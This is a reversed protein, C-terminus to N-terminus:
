ASAPKDPYRSHFQRLLVPSNAVNSAPEWSNHSTDYGKWKVLYFLRRRSIKSDLIEEVEYEVDPSNNVSVPPPPPQNRGPISNPKYPELLSVHFVPHIKMSAPLQLRYAQTGIRDRISFPGLRKWDLKKSPRETHIHPSLLWVQDGVSFEIRKHKADYYKAQQNQAAKVYEILDDHLNRLKQAFTKAAPVPLNYRRLDVAFTPHYGYNAYFPSCDISTQHANNYAFEAISLFDFWNDQQYNCYIRLYQEVIQNMRETQGDTQPHFSTSLRQRTGMMRSLSKWFKSTFISGRDSVLSEPIGHLRVVHDLFMKAFDHATATKLCPVLHSMKTFRDVFVLLSDFGNSMPLDVIFDCTIGKWPGSPVPLPALEGHRRHRPPKARACTDCTTVYSNVYASMGPFYYNRSLLECTKKAGFHGALPDDHYQKLLMVRLSDVPPIYVLGDRLLLDDQSSWPYPLNPNANARLKQALPDSQLADTILRRLEPEPDMTALSLSTIFPIESSPIASSPTASRPIVFGTPMEVNDSYDPRRSLGDAPNKTGPIPTLIFNYGSLFEAWRAQRRNLAKTSMLTELNKHDTLVKVPHRSGELYHRWHKMCEVIALLERDQIDYNCEAPICKRSWFAVPHLRGEHPQSIIGSIAFGSADAHLFTELAPDFHRLIPASTFLTKLKEFAAKANDTWSFQNAKKLLDTLPLVVHSYSEIFRRYFNAFGLFVQVDHISEPRPWEVIVAIRSSDMRIGDASIIFGLFDVETVHFLCKELKVYLGHEILKELVQRTRAVLEEDTDAYILIDDMYAICFDDLYERLCENIYAQFSAPANTLGFPMVLYEFHGYRTRFATKFEDGAAVRLRHFADRLDLKVFRKAGNTRDLIETILPLPYRNKITIRNLARYDICLRLSGDPKKVFLVPSGFPSTSPQIHGKALKNEIYEKLVKLETESLNYIPGFVPKAGDELPIHHDLHGRHPPLSEAEDKSFAKALDQYQPPIEPPSGSAAGAAALTSEAIHDICVLFVQDHRGIRTTLRILPPEPRPPKPKPIFKTKKPPRRREPTAPITTTPTSPSEIISSVPPSPSIPPDNSRPSVTRLKWNIDPNQKELWPMGLIMSHIGIPAVLFTLTQPVGAITIKLTVQRNSHTLISGNALSVRVPPCPETKLRYSSVISEHIFNLSAGSDILAQLVRSLATLSVPLHIPDSNYRTLSTAIHAHRLPEVEAPRSVPHKGATPGSSPHSHTRHTTFVRTSPFPYAFISPSIRTQQSMRESQQRPKRLICLPLPRLSM